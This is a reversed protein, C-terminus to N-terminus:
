RTSNDNAEKLLEDRLEYLLAVAEQITKYQKPAYPNGYRTDLEDAVETIKKLNM